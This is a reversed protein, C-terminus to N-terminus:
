YCLKPSDTAKEQRFKHIIRALIRHKGSDTVCDCYSCAFVLSDALDIGCLDKLTKKIEASLEESLELPTRKRCGPCM